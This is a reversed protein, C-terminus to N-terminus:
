EKKQKLLDKIIVYMGIFLGSVVGAATLLNNKIQFYEDLKHGAWAGGLMIAAMQLGMGSYRLLSGPNPRKKPKKIEPTQM